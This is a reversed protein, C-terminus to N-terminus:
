LGWFCVTHVLLAQLSKVKFVPIAQQASGIKKMDYIWVIVIFICSAISAGLWYQAMFTPEPVYVPIVYGIFGLAWIM